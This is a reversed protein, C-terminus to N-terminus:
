KISYWTQLLENLRSNVWWTQTKAAVRCCTICGRTIMRVVHYLRNLSCMLLSPSDHLLRLRVILKIISHKGHLIVPHQRSFPATSNRARGGVRLLGSADLIPHFPMLSNSDHIEQSQKM